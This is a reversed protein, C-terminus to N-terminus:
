TVTKLKSSTRVTNSWMKRVRPRTVADKSQGWKQIMEARVTLVGTLDWQETKSSRVMVVTKGVVDPRKKKKKKFERNEHEGRWYSCRSGFHFCASEMGRASCKGVQEISWTLYRTLFAPQIM